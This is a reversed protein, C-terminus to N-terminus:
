AITSQDTTSQDNILLQNTMLSRNCFEQYYRTANTTSFIGKPIIPRYFHIFKHNSLTGKPVSYVM